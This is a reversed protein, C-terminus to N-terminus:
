WRPLSVAKLYLSLNLIVRRRWQYQSYCSLCLHRPTIFQESFVPSWQSYLQCGGPGQPLSNLKKLLVSGSRLESHLLLFFPASFFILLNQIPNFSSVPPTPPSLPCLFSSEVFSSQIFCTCLPTQPTPPSCLSFLSFLM